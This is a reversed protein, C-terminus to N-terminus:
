LTRHLSRHRGGLENVFPHDFHDSDVSSNDPIPPWNPSSKRAAGVCGTEVLWKEYAIQETDKSSSSGHSTDSDHGTDAPQTHVSTSTTPQDVDIQTFDDDSPASEEISQIKRFRKAVSGLCGGKGGKAMSVSHTGSPATTSKNPSQSTTSSMVAYDAATITYQEIGLARNLDYDDDEDYGDISEKDDSQRAMHAKQTSATDDKRKESSKSSGKSAAATSDDDLVSAPNPHLHLRLTVRPSVALSRIIVM